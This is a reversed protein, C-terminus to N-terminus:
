SRKRSGKTVAVDGVLLRVPIGGNRSRLREAFPLRLERDLRENASLLAIRWGALRARAVQGLRAYLDRLREAEGVRVGYPPNTALLGPIPGPELASISRVAFEIDGAVGAREANARAADIAGADRDFGRIPASATERVAALAEDRVRTWLAGDMEPWQHFAFSRHLGPAIRRAVLAGEIPITGSGCMPDVLPVDGSWDSALLMAAALTERLPAKALAQRYGRRHLLAGSSDASVTCRDRALRVVFLQGGDLDEDPADDSPAVRESVVDAGGLRWSISEALREAIADTHYLRSQHSTVRFRVPTEPALIREWPIARAQKELEHFAAARFSALRVLVRSATRLWLNARLIAEPTGAFAAGGPVARSAV